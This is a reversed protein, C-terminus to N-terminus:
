SAKSARMRALLIPMHKFCQTATKGPVAAAIRSWREKESSACGKPFAKVAKVLGQEQAPTWGDASDGGEVPKSPPTDASKKVEETDRKEEPKTEKEKLIKPDDQTKGRAGNTMYDSKVMAIIEDQTHTRLYNAIVEWRRATGKPFKKLAKELMRIDEESWKKLMEAEDVKKPEAIPTKKGGKKASSPSTAAVPTSPKPSSITASGLDEVCTKVKLTTGMSKMADQLLQLCEEVPVEVPPAGIAVPEPALKNNLELLPAYEIKTCIQEVEGIDPMQLKQEEPMDRAIVEQIITRFRSREKRVLKKEKEKQKKEEDKSKKAEAAAAAKAEEEAKLAAQAEEEKKKREQIKAQKKAEKAEKEQQRRASIRPDLKYALEVFALLRRQDEKKAKFRAKANEREMWRKHERCESTDLEFEDEQPFERWSKFKFWFDYFKEADEYSTNDDGIDPVPHIESWKANRRFASGFTKCFTEPTATSPLSDDFEDKSDYERRRVPDSLVEYAEQILKFREEIKVKEEDSKLAGCKDPHHKLATDRYADKIQKESALYRDNGLGLLDYLDEQEGKKKRKKKKEPEDTDTWAAKPSPAEDREEEPEEIDLSKLGLALLAAENFAHGAPEKVVKRPSTFESTVEKGGSPVLLPDYEIALTVAM